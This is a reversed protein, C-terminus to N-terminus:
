ALTWWFPLGITYLLCAFNWAGPKKQRQSIRLRVFFIVCLLSLIGMSGYPPIVFSLLIRVFSWVSWLLTMSMWKVAEELVVQSPVSAGSLNFWEPNKFCSVIPQCHCWSSSWICIMQVASWVSLWMLAEDSLKTVPRISKRIGLLTSAIFAVM